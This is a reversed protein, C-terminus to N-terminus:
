KVQKGGERAKFDHRFFQLRQGDDSGAVIVSLLTAKSLTMGFSNSVDDMM